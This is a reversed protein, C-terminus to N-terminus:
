YNNIKSKRLRLKPLFQGTTKQYEIYEQGFAEVMHREEAKVLYHWLPHLLVAWVLFIFSNLYIALGFSLVSIYAAYLPHRVYKFPGKTCLRNGREAKPLTRTTWIIIALTLVISVSFIMELLSQHTSIPPLNLLENIGGVSSLLVFSILFGVPGSGFVQNFKISKNNM